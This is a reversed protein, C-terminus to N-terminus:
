GDVGSIPGQGPMVIATYCDGEPAARTVASVPAVGLCCLWIAVVGHTATAATRDTGLVREADVIVQHAGVHWM